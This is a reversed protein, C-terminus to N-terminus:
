LIESKLDCIKSQHFQQERYKFNTFVALMGEKTM